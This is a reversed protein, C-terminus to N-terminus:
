LPSHFPVMPWFMNRIYTVYSIFANGGHLLLSGGDADFLAKASAHARIIVLSAVASMALLPIKELLLLKIGSLGTGNEGTQQSLRKLPWFDLLLLIVPLTVLMQKALLGLAFFVVVPLYRKLSPKRAYGIYAGMTLFWFLTSLLDKREAIWAVSEVHLPHIAFLMAVVMSRGVYGTLRHLIACLLVSNIAHIVMSAAHHGLPNLGFLEVDLMHSLWTLPHWNAAHFTTFAWILGKFTLGQRVMTNATVYVDDDFDIFGNQLVPWYVAVTLAAVLVLALPLHWTAARRDSPIDGAISM